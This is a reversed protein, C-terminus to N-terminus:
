SESIELLKISIKLVTSQSHEGFRGFIIGFWINCVYRNKHKYEREIHGKSKYRTNNVIIEKAEKYRDFLTNKYKM